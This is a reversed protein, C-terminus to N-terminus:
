VTTTHIRFQITFTFNPFKKFCNYLYSYLNVSERSFLCFLILCHSHLTAFVYVCRLCKHSSRRIWCFQFRSIVYLKNPALLITFNQSNYSTSQLSLLQDNSPPTPSQTINTRRERSEAMSHVVSPQSVKLDSGWSGGKRM